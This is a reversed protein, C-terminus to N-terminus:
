NWEKCCREDGTIQSVVRDPDNNEVSAAIGVVMGKDDSGDDVTGGFRNTPQRV